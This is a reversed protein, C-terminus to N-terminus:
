ISKAVTNLGFCEFLWLEFERRESLKLHQVMSVVEPKFLDDLCKVQWFLFRLPDCKVFAERLESLERAIVPSVDELARNKVYNKLHVVPEEKRPSQKFELGEGYVKKFVTDHVIAHPSLSDIVEDGKVWDEYRVWKPAFGVFGLRQCVVRLVEDCRKEIDAKKSEIALDLEDLSDRVIHFVEKDGDVVRQSWLASITKSGIQVVIQQEEFDRIFILNKKTVRVKKFKEITTKATSDSRGSISMQRRYGNPRWVISFRKKGIAMSDTFTEKPVANEFIPLAISKVYERLSHSSVDSKKDSSKGTSIFPPPNVM